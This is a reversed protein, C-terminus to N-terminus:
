CIYKLVFRRKQENEDLFVYDENQDDSKDSKFRRNRVSENVM